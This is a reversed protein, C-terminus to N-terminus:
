QICGNVAKGVRQQFCVGLGKQIWAPAAHGSPVSSALGAEWGRGPLSQILRSVRFEPTAPPVPQRPFRRKRTEKKKQGMTPPFLSIQLFWGDWHGHCGPATSQVVHFLFIKHSSVWVGFLRWPWSISQPPSWSPPPDKQPHWSQDSLWVVPPSKKSYQAPFCHKQM